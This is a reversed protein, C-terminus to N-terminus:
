LLVEKSVKKQKTLNEVREKSWNQIAKRLKLLKNHLAKLNDAIAEQEWIQHVLEKFGQIRLWFKEFKFTNPLSFTTSCIWILPSHYSNTTPLASQV